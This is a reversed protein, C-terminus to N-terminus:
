KGNGKDYVMYAFRCEDVNYYEMVFLPYLYTQMNYIWSDEHEFRSHTSMKLDEVIWGDADKYYIDPTGEIYYERNYKLVFKREQSFEETNKKMDKVYEAVQTCCDKLVM